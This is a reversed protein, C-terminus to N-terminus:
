RNFAKMVALIASNVRSRGTGSIVAYSVDLQKIEEVYLSFLEKRQGPHERLPDEAWPLDIDCLLYLDYRHSKVKEEIWPDCKGFKYLSWIKTVLMDTDCFLLNGAQDAMTNETELQQRAIKAIDEFEYNRGLGSLYERAFEPVWLTHFHSALQKALESKGTSEPGTVAIRKLKEMQAKGEM